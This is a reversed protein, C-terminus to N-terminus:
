KKDPTYVNVLPTLASHAKLMDLELRVGSEVPINIPAEKNSQQIQNYM